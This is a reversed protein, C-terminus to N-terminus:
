SKKAQHQEKFEPHKTKMHNQLDQFTRNCCPCVGHAVRKEIKRLKRGTKTLQGQLQIIETERRATKNKEAELQERLKQETSKSYHQKHGSPCYFWKEPDSQLVKHLDSPIGFIVGCSCCEETVMTVSTTYTMGSQFM